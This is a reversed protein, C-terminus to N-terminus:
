AGMSNFSANSGPKVTSARALFLESRPTSSHNVVIRQAPHFYVALDMTLTWPSLMGARAWLKLGTADVLLDRLM